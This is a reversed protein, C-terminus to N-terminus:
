GRVDTRIRDPSDQIDNYGGRDIYMDRMEQFHKIQTESFYTRVIASNYGDRSDKPIRLFTSDVQEELDQLEDLTLRNIREDKYPTGGYLIDSIMSTGRHGYNMLFKQLEFQSGKEDLLEKIVPQVDIILSALVSDEKLM